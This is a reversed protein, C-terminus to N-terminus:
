ANEQLRTIMAWMAPVSNFNEPIIEAAEIQIDFADELESILSIVGFSDLIRDDVLGKEEMWNVSDDIENLINMLAEM